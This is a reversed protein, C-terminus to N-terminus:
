LHSPAVTSDPQWHAMCQDLKEGHVAEWAQWNRVASTVYDSEGIAAIVKDNQEALEAPLPRVFDILLIARDEQSHNWAHHLHTDDFILSEGERWHAVEGAVSIGCQAEPQPIKLGLHYRLLGNYVGRHEPLEKGAQFISFLAAKLGPINKFAEVTAPCRKENGSLDNGLVYLPVAKWRKDASLTRQELWYEEVGPLMHLVSLLCDLETRIAPWAAELRKEWAFEAVDFFRTRGSPSATILAETEEFFEVM